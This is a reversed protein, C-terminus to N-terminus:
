YCRAAQDAAVTAREADTSADTSQRALSACVARRSDDIYTSLVVRANGMTATIRWCGGAAFSMTSPIFGGNMWVPYSEARPVDARFAGRGPTVRRADITPAGDVLRFWPHKSRWGEGAVYGAYVQIRTWLDGEGVVATTSPNLRRVQAPLDRRPTAETQSECRDARSRAESTGANSPLPLLVAVAALACVLKMGLRRVASALRQRM